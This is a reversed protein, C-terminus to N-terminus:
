GLVDLSVRFTAYGSRSGFHPAKIAATEAFVRGKAQIADQTGVLLLLAAGFVSMFPVALVGLLMVLPFKWNYAKVMGWLDKM